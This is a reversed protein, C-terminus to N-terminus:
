AVVCLDDNVNLVGSTHLAIENAARQVTRSKVNGSLSAIGNSVHVEICKAEAAMSRRIANRIQSRIDDDAVRAVPVVTLHNDVRLVGIVDSVIHQTLRKRWLSDVIGKLLVHGGSIAISIRQADINGNAKVAQEVRAGIESQSGATDEPWRVELLNDVRQVGGILECDELAALKAHYTPVTGEIVVVRNRVTVQLNDTNVRSDWQLQAIADRKIENDRMKM